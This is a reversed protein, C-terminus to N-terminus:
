RELAVIAAKDALAVRRREVLYASQAVFAAADHGFQLHAVGIGNFDPLQADLVVVKQAIEDLHRRRGALLQQALRLRAACRAEDMALGHRVGHAERGRLEGLELCLDRRGGVPGEGEFQRDEGIEDGRNDRLAVRQFGGGLREGAEIDRGGERM